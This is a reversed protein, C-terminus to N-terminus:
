YALCIQQRIYILHIKGILVSSKTKNPKIMKKKKCIKLNILYIIYEQLIFAYILKSHMNRLNKSCMSIRARHM